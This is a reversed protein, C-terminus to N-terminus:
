FNARLSFSLARLFNCAFHGLNYLFMVYKTKQGQGSTHTPIHTIVSALM